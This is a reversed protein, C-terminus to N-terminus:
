LANGTKQKHLAKLQNHLEQRKKSSLYKWSKNFGLCTVRDVVGFCYRAAEEPTAVKISIRSYNGYACLYYM